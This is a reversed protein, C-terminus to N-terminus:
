KKLAINKCLSKKKPHIKMVNLGLDHFSLDEAKYYNLIHNIANERNAGENLFDQYLTTIEQLSVEPCVLDHRDSNLFGGTLLYDMGEKTGTKQGTAIDIYTAQNINWESLYLLRSFTTLYDRTIIYECPVYSGNIPYLKMANVCEDLTNLFILGFYATNMIEVDVNNKQLKEKIVTLITEKDFKYKRNELVSTIIEQIIEQSKLTSEQIISM